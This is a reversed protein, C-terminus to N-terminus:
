LLNKMNPIANLDVARNVVKQKTIHIYIGGFFAGERRPKLNASFM